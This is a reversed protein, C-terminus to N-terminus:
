GSERIIKRLLPGSTSKTTAMQVASVGVNSVDSSIRIQKETSPANVSSAEIVVRKLSEQIMNATMKLTQKDVGGGGGVVAVLPAHFDFYYNIPTGADVAIETVNRGAAFQAAPGLL